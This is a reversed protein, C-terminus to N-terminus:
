VANIFRESMALAHSLTLAHFSFAHLHMHKIPSNKGRLATRAVCLFIHQVRRNSTHIGGLRM